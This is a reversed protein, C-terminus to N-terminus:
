SVNNYDFTQLIRTGKNKLRINKHVYKKQINICLVGTSMTM